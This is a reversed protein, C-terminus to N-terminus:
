FRVRQPLASMDKVLMKDKLFVVGLMGQLQVVKKKQKLM